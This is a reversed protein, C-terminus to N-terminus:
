EGHEQIIKLFASQEIKEGIQQEINNILEKELKRTNDLEQSLKARTIELRSAEKALENFQEHLDSYVLYIQRIQKKQEENIM